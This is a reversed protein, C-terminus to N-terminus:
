SKVEPLEFILGETKSAESQVLDVTHKGEVQSMPFYKAIDGNYPWHVLLTTGTKERCVKGGMNVPLLRGLKRKLDFDLRVGTGSVIGAKKALDCSVMIRLGYRGHEKRVAYRIPAVEAISRSEYKAPEFM